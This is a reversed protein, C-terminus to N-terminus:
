HLDAAIMTLIREARGRESEGEISQVSLDPTIGAVEDTGDARLRVCDPSRFRMKSHPLVIPDTDTMFGCGDQGTRQGIIRGAGNNQIVAAFMEAASYTKGDVLVYLPGSWSNWDNGVAAPTFVRREIRPDGFAGAPLYAVPGGASGVTTLPKCTLARWSRREHWVWRMDCPPASMQTKAHNLIAVARDLVALTRVDHTQSRVQIVNDLQGDVYDVFAPATSMLVASSRLPKGTFLYAAIDGSNDGGSNHGIDVLVAAVHEARFRQLQAGLTEFWGLAEAERVDRENISGDAKAAKAWARVCEAPYAQHHFSQIRVVGIKRGDRLLLVGARFSHSQGDSELKFGSLSEFPATFAVHGDSAYGLAACGGEPDSAILLPAPPEAAPTAFVGTLPLESLHGEHGVGIVFAEIARRAEAENSAENLARLTTRDLAPLDVNGEWAGYWALNADSRELARKLAAYDELWADRQFTSDPSVTTNAPVVNVHSSVYRAHAVM